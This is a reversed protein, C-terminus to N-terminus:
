QAQRQYPTFPLGNKKLNIEILKWSVGVERSIDRSNKGEALAQRLYEADEHKKV